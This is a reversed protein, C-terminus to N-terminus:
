LGLNDDCLFEDDCREDASEGIWHAWYNLNALEAATGATAAVFDHLRSVDGASALAVSASRAEMLTTIGGNAFPDRGARRWEDRLWEIVHTRRDFGLLYVAQRRLLADDPRADRQALVMLHDFFRHVEQHPLLPGPAVPGRRPVKPVFELLQAPLEGTLPWTILNTLRRRHVHAALPHPDPISRHGGATIGVSLVLDAAIADRLHCGTSVPAGLRTLRAGLWMFDGTRVSALPRRGSEWGQITTVDVGLSEALRDQTVGASRRALKFVFGSVTGTLWSGHRETLTIPSQRM